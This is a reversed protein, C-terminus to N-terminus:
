NFDMPSAFYIDNLKRKFSEVLDCSRIDMPLKNWVRPGAVSFARDGFKTCVRRVRLDGHTASRLNYGTEAASTSGCLDALYRPAMGRLSKFTLLCLKFEIRQPVRLWHLRDRILPTVHDYKQCGCLLKASANLVPQLRDLFCNLIGALLSNCYDVRSIVFSNVVTRAAEFSLSEM